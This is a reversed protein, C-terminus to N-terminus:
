RHCVGSGPRQEMKGERYAIEIPRASEVALDQLAGLSPSQRAPGIEIEETMVEHRMECGAFHDATLTRFDSVRLLRRKPM